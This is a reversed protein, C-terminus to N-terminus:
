MKIWIVTYPHDTHVRETGLYVRDFALIIREEGISEYVLTYGSVEEVTYPQHDDDEM